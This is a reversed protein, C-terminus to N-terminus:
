QCFTSASGRVRLLFRLLPITQKVEAQSYTYSRCFVHCAVMSSLPSLYPACKYLAGYEGPDRVTSSPSNANQGERTTQLLKASRPAMVKVRTDVRVDPRSTHCVQATNTMIRDIEVFLLLLRHLIVSRVAEKMSDLALIIIIM